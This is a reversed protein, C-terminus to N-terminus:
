VFPSPVPPKATWVDWRPLFRCVFECVVKACRLSMPGRGGAGKEGAGHSGSSDRPSRDETVDRSGNGRYQCRTVNWRGGAGLRPKVAVMSVFFGIRKTVAADNKSPCSAAMLTM